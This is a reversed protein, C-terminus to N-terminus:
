FLHFDEGEGGGLMVVEGKLLKGLVKMCVGLEIGIGEKMGDEKELVSMM